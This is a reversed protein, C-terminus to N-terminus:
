ELSMGRNQVSGGCEECEVPHFFAEIINGCGLCEYTAPGSSEDAVDHM